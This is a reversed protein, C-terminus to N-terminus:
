SQALEVRCLSSRQLRSDHRETLTKSMEVIGKHKWILLSWRFDSGLREFLLTLKPCLAGERTHWGGGSIQLSSKLAAVKLDAEPAQLCLLGM